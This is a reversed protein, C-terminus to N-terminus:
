RSCFTNHRHHNRKQQAVNNEKMKDYNTTYLMQSDCTDENENQLHDVKKFIVENDITLYPSERYGAPLEYWGWGNSAQIASLMHKCPLYHKQWDVCECSSVNEDNPCRFHVKYYQNETDSRVSFIGTDQSITHMMAEDAYILRKLCHEVLYNPRNHLYQAIQKNYRKFDTSCQANNAIYSFFM